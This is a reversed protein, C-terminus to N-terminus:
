QLLYVNTIIGSSIWLSTKTQYNLSQEAPPAATVLQRDGGGLGGGGM